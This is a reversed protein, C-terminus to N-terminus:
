IHDIYYSGSSLSLICFSTCYIGTYSNSPTMPTTSCKYFMILTAKMSYSFAYTTGTLPLPQFERLLSLNQTLGM